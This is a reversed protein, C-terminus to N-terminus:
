HKKLDSYIIILCVWAEGNADVVSCCTGLPVDHNIFMGFSFVM